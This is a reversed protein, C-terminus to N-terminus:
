RRPAGACCACSRRPPRAEHALRALLDTRRGVQHLHQGLRLDRVGRLQHVLDVEDHGGTAGAHDLGRVAGPRRGEADTDAVRDVHDVLGGVERVRGARDHGGLGEVVGRAAQGVVRDHHVLGDVVVQECRSVAAPPYRQSASPSPTAQLGRHPGVAPSIGVGSTIALDAGCMAPRAPMSTGSTSSRGRDDLLVADPVVVREAALLERDHEREVAVGAVDVVRHGLDFSM